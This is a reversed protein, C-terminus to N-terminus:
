SNVPAAAAMRANSRGFRLLAAEALLCALTLAIFYRWLPAEPQGSKEVDLELEEPGDWVHVNPKDRFMTRLDEVTYAALESEEKRHNFALTAFPTTGRRLEYFGPVDMGDPLELQVENGVVRQSPIFETSDRVLRLSADDRQGNVGASNGPLALRIVRQNLRYAPQREEKYSLMAMRYMVPVYLAHNVFDSYAASFPASFVYVKGPGSDFQALYSEGDRLRLIDAGTRTWRLVPVVRPMAVAKQQAGFVDKFFPEQASPMAVERKEATSVNTEWQVTGLGGARFFEQYANHSSSVASPVVVVTAGRKLAALLATRIGNSFDAVERVLVIHAKSLLEYNIRQPLFFSYRFLPENTFLREAYPEAGIEIVDINRVPQLSFYYSNDFALAGDEIQISGKIVGSDEVRVQFANISSQGPALGVQYAAVQKGHVIVKVPVNNVQAVGGNRLKVQLNLNSNLRVFGEDIWVSDVYINGSKKGNLYVLNLIGPSKKIADIATENDKKQFDSFINIAYNNQEIYDEYASIKSLSGAESFSVRDLREKFLTSSIPSTSTNMLVQKDLSNGKGIFTKATEISLNLLNSGKRGINQM